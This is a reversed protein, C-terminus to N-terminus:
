LKLSLDLGPNEEHPDQKNPLAIYAMSQLGPSQSLFVRSMGFSSTGGTASTSAGEKFGANNIVEGASQFGHGDPFHQPPQWGQYGHGLGARSWAAPSVARSSSPKHIMSHSQIGLAKEFSSRAQFQHHRHYYYSILGNVNHEEFPDVENNASGEMIGKGRKMLAREQKHANQHGGLAQQSFFKKFCHKCRFTNRESNDDDNNSGSSNGPGVSAELKEDALRPENEAARPPPPGPIYEGFCGVLDLELRSRLGAEEEDDPSAELDYVVINSTINKM